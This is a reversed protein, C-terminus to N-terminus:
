EPYTFCGIRFFIKYKNDYLEDNTLIIQVSNFENFVPKDSYEAITKNNRKYINKSQSLTDFMKSLKKFATKADAESDFMFWLQFDTVGPRGDKEESALLDLRGERFKADFYPHSKFKLSHVTYYFKPIPRNPYITWGGAKHEKTFGPFYTKVFDFVTSDPKNIFINFFMKNSLEDFKNLQGYSSTATVLFLLLFLLRSM